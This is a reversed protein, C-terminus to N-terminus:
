LTMGGEMKTAEFLCPALAGESRGYRKEARGPTPTTTAEVEAVHSWQNPFLTQAM